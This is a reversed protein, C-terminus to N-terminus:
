AGDDDTYQAFKLLTRVCRNFGMESSGFYHDWNSSWNPLTGLM